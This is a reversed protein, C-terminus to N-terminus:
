KFSKKKKLPLRTIVCVPSKIRHKPNRVYSIAFRHILTAERIISSKKKTRGEQKM